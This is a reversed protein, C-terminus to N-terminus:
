RRYLPFEYWSVVGYTAVLVLLFVAARVHFIRMLSNSRGRLKPMVVFRAVVFAACAAVFAALLSLGAATGCGDRFWESYEGDANSSGEVCDAKYAVSCSAPVGLFTVGAIFLWLPVPRAWVPPVPHAGGSPTIAPLASLIRAFAAVAREGRGPTPVLQTFYSMHANVVGGDDITVTQFGLAFLALVGARLAPGLVADLVRADTTPTDIYVARDFVEDGTQHEVNIGKRKAVVDGVDERRLTIALPRVAVLRPARGSRRYDGAAKVDHRADQELDDRAVDDYRAQLDLCSSSGSRYLVTIPHPRLAIVFGDTGSVGAIARLEDILDGEANAM